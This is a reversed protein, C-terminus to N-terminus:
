EDGWAIWSVSTDETAATSDDQWIEITLNGDNGTFSATVQFVDGAAAGPAENLWAGGGKVKSLGTAVVLSAGTVEGAGLKVTKGETSIGDPFNTTGM